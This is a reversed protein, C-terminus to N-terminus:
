AGRTYAFAASAGSPNTVIVPASGASGAPLVATILNDHVVTYSTANVAGFKVSTGGTVGTFRSGEIAVSTGVAAATPLVSTIVPVLSVAYIGDDLFLYYDINKSRSADYVPLCKIEVAVSAAGGATFGIDGITTFRGRPILGGVRKNGSKMRFVHSKPEQDEGLAVAVAHRTGTSVTSSTVTVNADGFFNKLTYENLELFECKWVGNSATQVQEIINADMDKIDAFTKGSQVTIGADGIMGADKFGANLVAEFFAQDTPPLPTGYTASLVTGTVLDQGIGAFVAGVNAAM